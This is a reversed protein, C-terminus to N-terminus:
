KAVLDSGSLTLERALRASATFVAARILSDAKFLTIKTPTGRTLLDFVRFRVKPLIGRLIGRSAIPSSIDRIDIRVRHIFKCGDGLSDKGEISQGL